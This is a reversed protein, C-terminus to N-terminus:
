RVRHGPLWLSLRSGSRTYCRAPLPWSTARAATLLGIERAGAARLVRSCEAATAGTTLVDDVLLVREPPDRGTSRFADRMSRRREAGSRSTQPPTDITRVLLPLAPVGLATATVRALARAQDYGRAARRAPSLPVWTVADAALDNVAAMAGGLAEAVARWGSFKMRLLAEKAPGAYLFPSRAVGVPRPPCHRCAALEEEAPMGCRVCGPPDLVVLGDRCPPCFPWPGDGCGACRMPFLVDLLGRM